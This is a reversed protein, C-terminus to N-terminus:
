SEFIGGARPKVQISHDSRSPCRPPKRASPIVPTLQTSVKPTGIDSTHDHNSPVGTGQVSRAYFECSCQGLFRSPDRRLSTAEARMPRSSRYSTSLCTSNSAADLSYSSRHLEDGSSPAHDFRAAVAPRMHPTRPAPQAPRPLQIM